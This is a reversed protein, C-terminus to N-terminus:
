FALWSWWPAGLKNVQGSTADVEVKQTVTVPVLGLIKKVQAKEAQYVPVAQNSGIEQKILKLNSVPVQLEDTAKKAAEVPGVNVQHGGAYIVGEKITMDEPVTLKIEPQRTASPASGLKMNGSEFSNTQPVAVYPQSSLKPKIGIQYDGADPISMDLESVQSNTKPLEPKSSNSYDSSSVVMPIQQGDPKVMLVAKQSALTSAQTVSGTFVFLALAWFM